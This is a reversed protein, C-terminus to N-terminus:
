RLVIAAGRHLAKGLLNPAVQRVHREQLKHWTNNRRNLTNNEILFREAVHGKVVCRDFFQAACLFHLAKQIHAASVAGEGAAQIRARYIEGDVTRSFVAQNERRMESVFVLQGLEHARILRPQFGHRAHCRFCGQAHRHIRVRVIASQDNVLVSACRNRPNECGAFAGATHM